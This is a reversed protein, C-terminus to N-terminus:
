MKLIEFEVVTYDGNFKRIKLRLWPNDTTLEHNVNGVVETVVALAAEESAVATDVELDVASDVELDVELDVATDVEM